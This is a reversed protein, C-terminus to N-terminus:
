QAEEWGYWGDVLDGVDASAVEPRQRLWDAVAARDVETPSGRGWASVVGDTEKLPLQGGMGGVALHRSEIIEIFGDLFADHAADEMPQHFQVRVEFVLEQFDGVRLKKRQRRNLRRRKRAPPLHNLM